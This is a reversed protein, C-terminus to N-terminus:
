AIVAVVMAVSAILGVFFWGWPPFKRRDLLRPRWLAKEPGCLPPIPNRLVGHPNFGKILPCVCTGYKKVHEPTHWRYGDTGIPSSYRCTECPYLLLPDNNRRDAEAELEAMRRELQRQIEASSRVARLTM